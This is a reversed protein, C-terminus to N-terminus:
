KGEYQQRSIENQNMQDLLSKIQEESKKAIEQGKRRDETALKEKELVDINLKEIKESLSKLAKVKAETECEPKEFNETSQQQNLKKEKRKEKLVKQQEIHKQLGDRM